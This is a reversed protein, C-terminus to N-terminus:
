GYNTAINLNKKKFPLPFATLTQTQRSDEGTQSINKGFLINKPLRKFAGHASHFDLSKQPLKAFQWMIRNVVEKERKDKEIHGKKGCTQSCGHRLGVLKVPLLVQRLEHLLAGGEVSKVLYHAEFKKFFSFFFLAVTFHSAPLSPLHLQWVARGSTLEHLLKWAVAKRPIPRHWLSRPNTSWMEDIGSNDKVRIVMGLSLWKHICVYVWLHVFKSNYSHAPPM